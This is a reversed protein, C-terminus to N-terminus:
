FHKFKKGRLFRIVNTISNIGLHALIYCIAFKKDKFIGLGLIKILEHLTKRASHYNYNYLCSAAHNFLNTKMIIKKQQTEIDKLYTDMVFLLEDLARDGEYQRFIMNCGNIRYYALEKPLYTGNCNKVIRLLFEWDSLYKLNENFYGYKSIFTRKFIISHGAIISGLLMANYISINNEIKIKDDPISRLHRGFNDIVATKCFVYDYSNEELIGILTRLFENSWYDDGSLFVIFNGKALSLGKNFNRTAGINVKNRIYKFREDGHRKLWESVIFETSDSSADDLILVEYDYFNQEIICNLCESIYNEHNYCPLIISIKPARM